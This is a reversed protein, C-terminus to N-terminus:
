KAVEGCVMAKSKMKPEGKELWKEWGGAAEVRRDFAAAGEARLEAEREPTIRTAFHVAVFVAAIVAFLLVMKAVELWFERTLDEPYEKM